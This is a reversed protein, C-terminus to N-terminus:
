LDEIRELTYEILKRELGEPDAVFEGTVRNALIANMSLTRHGFIRGFAYLASTEMELNTFSFDGVRFARLRDLFSDVSTGARLQRGQPVYFGPCTLTHGSICDHGLKNLLTPDASVLYPSFSFSMHRGFDSAIASEGQDSPNEYFEMLTDMGMGTASALLAGPVIEESISGSTGIRIINLSRKEPKVKRGTFDINALADLENMVIEINDTGMGTSLVMVDMGGIRGRHTILERQTRKFYVTDFYRSVRATRQPDGVTLIIDCIEDPELDLHYIRGNDRIILESENM